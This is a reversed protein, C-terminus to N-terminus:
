GGARSGKDIWVPYTVMGMAAGVFRSEKISAQQERERLVESLLVAGQLGKVKDTQAYQLARARQIAEQRKEAQYRAEEIDQLIRREEEQQERM